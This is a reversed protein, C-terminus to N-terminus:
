DGVREISMTPLISVKKTQNQSIELIAAQLEADTLEKVSTETKINLTQSQQIYGTAKLYLEASKTDGSIGKIYIADLLKQTREPSQSMGEVGLKWREIFQKKKEWTGLTNIHVEHEEAWAKKTGPTRSDEPTLLWALYAEQEQSLFLSETRAM